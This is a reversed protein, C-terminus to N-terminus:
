QKYTQCDIMHCLLVIMSNSLILKLHIPNGKKIGSHNISRTTSIVVDRSVSRITYSQKGVKIGM